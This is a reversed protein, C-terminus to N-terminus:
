RVSFTRRSLLIRPGSIRRKGGAAHRGPAGHGNSGRPMRRSRAIPGPSARETELSKVANALWNGDAECDGDIFAYIEGRAKGAGYNRLESVNVGPLVHISETYKECLNLTRDTSGNDVVIIEFRDGPYRQSKLSELCKVIHREENLTPIIISIFPYNMKSEMGTM